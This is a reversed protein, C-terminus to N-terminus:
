KFFECNCTLRDKKYTCDKCKPTYSNRDIDFLNMNGIAKKEPHAKWYEAKDQFENYQKKDIAKHM